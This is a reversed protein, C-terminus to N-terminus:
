YNLKNNHPKRELQDVYDLSGLRMRMAFKSNQSVKEEIKCFLALNDFSYANPMKVKFNNHSSLTPSSLFFTQNKIFDYKIKTSNLQHEIKLIPYDEHANQGNLFVSTSLIWFSVFYISIQKKVVVKM